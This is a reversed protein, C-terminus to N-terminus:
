DFVRINKNVRVKECLKEQIERGTIDGAHLIRRRSHGGELGLEFTSEKEETLSFDVGLGHLERILCPGGDCIRRVVDEDCLGAGAKMTDKVHTSVSDKPSVVAAIGGQSYRTNSEELTRKTVLAVRHKKAAKLALTLGAIGSGVILIESDPMPFGHTIDCNVGLGASDRGPVEGHNGERRRRSGGRWFAPIGAKKRRVKNM